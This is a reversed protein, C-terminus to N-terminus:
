LVVVVQAIIKNASFNPNRALVHIISAFCEGNGLHQAPEFLKSAAITEVLAALKM